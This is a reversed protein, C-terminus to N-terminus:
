AAGGTEYRVVRARLLVRGERRLGPSQQRAVTGREHPHATRREGVAEMIGPDFPDREAAPLLEGKLESALWGCLPERYRALGELWRAPVTGTSGWGTGLWSLLPGLADAVDADTAARGAEAVRCMVALWQRAAPEAAEKALSQLAQLWDPGAPLPATTSGVPPLVSESRVEPAPPLSSVTAGEALVVQAPLELRGGRRFGPRRVEQVMGAPLDPALAEGVAECESGPASGRAPIVWSLGLGAVTTGVQQRLERLLEAALAGEPGEAEPTFDPLVLRAAAEAFLSPYRVSWADLESPSAALEALSLVEGLATHLPQGATLRGRLFSLREVVPAASWVQRLPDPTTDRNSAPAGAVAAELATLRQRLEDLPERLALVTAQAVAEASLALTWEDQGESM